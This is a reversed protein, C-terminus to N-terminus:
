GLIDPPCRERDCALKYIRRIIIQYNCGSYDNTEDADIEEWVKAPDM